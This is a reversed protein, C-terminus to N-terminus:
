ASLKNIRLLNFKILSVKSPLRTGLDGVTLRLPPDLMKVNGFWSLDPYSIIKVTSYIKFNFFATATFCVISIVGLITSSISLPMWLLFLSFSVSFVWISTVKSVVRRDTVDEQYRLHLHIERNRWCLSAVNASYIKYVVGDQKNPDVADKPRM